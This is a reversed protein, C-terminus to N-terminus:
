AGQLGRAYSQAQWIDLPLSDESWNSTNLHTGVILVSLTLLWTRALRGAASTRPAFLDVSGAFHALFPDALELDHDLFCALSGPGDKTVHRRLGRLKGRDGGLIGTRDGVLGGVHGFMDAIPQRSAALIQGGIQSLSGLRCPSLGRSLSIGCVRLGLVV